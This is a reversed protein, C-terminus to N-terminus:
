FFVPRIDAHLDAHGLDGAIMGLNDGWFNISIIIIDRVGDVCLNDQKLQYSCRIKGGLITVQIGACKKNGLERALAQIVNPHVEFWSLDHSYTRSESLKEDLEEITSARQETRLCVDRVRGRSRRFRRGM